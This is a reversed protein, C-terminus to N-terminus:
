SQWTGTICGRVWNPDSTTSATRCVCVNSNMMPPLATTTYVMLARKVIEDPFATPETNMSLIFGPTEDVLPMSEDKILDKGHTNFARRGIDDFVVPFRGYNQQLSRLRAATFNHKDLTHTHGFMSTMLTDILSTKRALQM